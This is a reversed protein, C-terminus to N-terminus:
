FDIVKTFKYTSVGVWIIVILLSPLKKDMEGGVVVLMYGVTTAACFIFEIYQYFRSKELRSEVLGLLSIFVSVSALIDVIGIDLM